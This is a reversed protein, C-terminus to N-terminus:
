LLVRRLITRTFGFFSLIIRISNDNVGVATFFNPSIFLGTLTLKLIISNSVKFNRLGFPLFIVFTTLFGLSLILPGSDHFPVCNIISDDENEMGKLNCLPEWTIFEISPSIQLAYTAGILFTALFNDISQATEIIAACAQVLCSIM